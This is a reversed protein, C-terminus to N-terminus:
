ELMPLSAVQSMFLAFHTLQVQAGSSDGNCSNKCEETISVGGLENHSMNLSILTRHSQLGRILEQADSIVNHSLDLTHLTTSNCLANSIFTLAMNDLANRSLHLEHLQHPLSMHDPFLVCVGERRLNNGDLWLCRLRALAKNNSSSNYNNESGVKVSDANNTFAYLASALVHAFTSDFDNDHTGCANNHAFDLEELTSWDGITSVLM